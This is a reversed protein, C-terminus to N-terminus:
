ILQALGNIAIKETLLNDETLVSEAFGLLTRAAQFCSIRLVCHAFSINCIKTVKGNLLCIKRISNWLSLANLVNFLFTYKSPVNKQLHLSKWISRNVRDM